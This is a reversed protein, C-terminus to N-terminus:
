NNMAPQAIPAVPHAHTSPVTKNKYSAIDDYVMNASRLASADNLDKYQDPISQSILHSSLKNRKDSSQHIYTYFFDMIDQKTLKKISEVENTRRHFDYYGGSLELWLRSAENNLNKPKELKEEILSNKSKEFEEDSMEELLKKITVNFFEEVRGELYIPPRESQILVRFGMAGISKRVGSFVMYGLQEKTRLQDFAPEHAIQAFLSLKTRLDLDAVDGVENYYEIASNVQAKNPVHKTYIHDGSSVHSPYCSM